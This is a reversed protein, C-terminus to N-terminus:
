SRNISQCAPNLIDLKTASHYKMNNESSSRCVSNGCILLIIEFSSETEVTETFSGRCYARFNAWVM